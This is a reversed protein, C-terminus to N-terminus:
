LLRHIFATAVPDTNKQLHISGACSCKVIWQKLFTWRDAPIFDITMIRETRCRFFSLLIQFFNAAINEGRDFVEATNEIDRQSFGDGSAGAVIM